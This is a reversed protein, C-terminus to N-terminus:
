AGLHYTLNIRWSANPTAPCVVTTATGLAICALGEPGCDLRQEKDVGIAAADQGFSFALAGPINTTTVLTPAAAATLAGQATRVIQLSDIYHRLGPVAPVPLTVAAGIAGTATVALTAPDQDAAVSNLSRNQDASVFLTCNGSTYLSVRIRLRKLQGVPIAYVRTLNAAVLADVIMPQGASPITGGTCGPSFAHALVPFWQSAPTGGTPAVADIGDMAGTFEITGVFLDSMLYVLANAEGNLEMIM